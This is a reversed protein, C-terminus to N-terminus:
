HSQGTIREGKMRSLSIQVGQNNRYVNNFISVTNSSFKGSSANIIQYITFVAGPDLANLTGIPSKFAFGKLIKVDERDIDTTNSNAIAKLHSIDDITLGSADASAQRFAALDESSFQEPNLSAYQTIFSLEPIFAYSSNSMFIKFDKVDSVQKANLSKGDRIAVVIAKLSEIDQASMKAGLKQDDNFKSLALQSLLSSNLNIIQSLVARDGQNLPDYLKELSHAGYETLDSVDQNSLSSEPNSIYNNIITSLRDLVANSRSTLVEKPPPIRRVDSQLASTCLLVTALFVKEM